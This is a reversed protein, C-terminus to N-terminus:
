YSAPVTSKAERMTEEVRVRFIMRKDPQKDSRESFFRPPVRGETWAIAGSVIDEGSEVMLFGQSYGEKFFRMYVPRQGSIMMRARGKDNTEGISGEPQPLPGFMSGPAGIISAQMTPVYFTGGEARIVVDDIPTMTTADAVEVVVPMPRSASCGVILMTLLPALYRIM